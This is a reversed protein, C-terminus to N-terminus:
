AVAEEVEAVAKKAVRSAKKKPSAEVAEETEETLKSRLKSAAEKIVELSSELKGPVKKLSEVRTDIQSQLDKGASKAYAKIDDGTRKIEDRLSTTKEGGTKKAKELVKGATDSTESAFARSASVFESGVSKLAEYYGEIPKTYEATRERLKSQSDSLTQRYDSVRNFLKSSYEM